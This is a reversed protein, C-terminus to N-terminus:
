EDEVKEDADAEASETTAAAGEVADEDIGGDVHRGGDGRADVDAVEAEALAPETFDEEAEEAAVEETATKEAAAAQAARARSLRGSPRGPAPATSGAPVTPASRRWAARRLQASRGADPERHHHHPLDAQPHAHGAWPGPSALAQHDDGRRRLLGVRLAGRSGARRQERRQGRGVCCRASPRAADRESGPLIDEARTAGGRRPDPRPGRAGQLGVDRCYRLVARADRSARQDQPRDDGGGVSRAPTTGSPGPRRSSAWSTAWWRSPSTSRCTSAATMSPSPTASWTPSSRRAVRGPRSSGRRTGSSNLDDVKKLLHDDVFPGKKLSRPM